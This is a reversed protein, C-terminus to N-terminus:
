PFTEVGLGAEQWRGFHALCLACPVDDEWGEHSPGDQAVLLQKMFVAKDAAQKAEAEEKARKADDKKRKEEAKQEALREKQQQAIVRKEELERMRESFAESTLDVVRQRWVPLDDLTLEAKSALPHDAARSAVTSDGPITFPVGAEDLTAESLAEGKRCVRGINVPAPL